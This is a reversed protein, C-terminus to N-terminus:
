GCFEYPPLSGSMVDVQNVTQDGAVIEYSIWGPSGKVTLLNHETTPGRSGAIATPYATKVAEMTSGIGIGDATKPGAETLAIGILSGTEDAALLLPADTTTSGAPGFFTILPNPCSNRDSVDVYGPFAAEVDKVSQGLRAPGVGDASIIWTTPDAPDQVQSVTATPTASPTGTTPDGAPTGDGACASLVAVFGSALLLLSVRKM